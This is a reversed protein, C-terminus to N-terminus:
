DIVWLGYSGMNLAGQRIVNTVGKIEMNIKQMRTQALDVKMNSLDIKTNAMSLSTQAVMEAKMGVLNYKLAYADSSRGGVKQFFDDITKTGGPAVITVGGVATITVAAPTTMNIGGVATQMVTGAVTQTVNGAVTQMVNGGVTETANGAVTDDRNGVITTSDNGTITAKRNAGITITENQGIDKKRDNTVDLWDDHKIHAARDNKVLVEKDKEAQIYLQESGKKDEFRIENANSTSGGKTSQTKIGSQTQNQPLAYPLKNFGNYVSGVVLPRDPNGDLFDVVVEHGIRPIFQAGWNGGAWIQAVRVWCSSTENAKGERDWHFDLRVRGYEDTWIEEGDKGVVTATQAGIRPRPTSRAPRFPVQSDIATISCRFDKEETGGGSEYQEAAIHYNSSVILFTKNQDDRPYESLTFIHGAALGRCDAEGEFIEFDSQHEELRVKVVDKGQAPEFYGGPYEYRKFESQDHDKAASREAELTAKPTQFKYDDVTYSGSRVEVFNSWHDFHEDDRQGPPYYPVTDYNPMPSHVSADDVLVLTHKDATHEFFYYIGVEEMLRSVFDFDSERFQVVYERSPYTGTLRAEFDGMGQDRFVQKIIDPITKNQFIRCNTARTLLWFWPRLTARHVVFGRRRAVRAFRAVYGHLHRQSGDPLEINVTMTKGLVDNPKVDDVESLLDLDFRFPRGLEEYGTMSQLQLSDGVPTTVTGRRQGAM